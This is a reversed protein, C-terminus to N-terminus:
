IDTVRHYEDDLAQADEPLLAVVLYQAYEGFYDVLSAIRDSDIAELSDLLMFPVSEHLDHVLYGALAFVLGTVERESESLHEISDEYAAGSDTTRVIHLKFVTKEVKQRGDRVTEEVREIWIRDLNDYDLIDLMANMHENFSEVADSEIQDIETRKNTLEDVIRQRKDQLEDNEELLEEIEAIEDTVSELDSELRDIEFELQNAERHLSLVAEFDEAELENVEAELEEVEETLDERQAKLSDVQSERDEIESEVREIKSELEERRNQTRRHERQEDKLSDLKDGIDAVESTKDNLLTELQTITQEIQERDVTSGCTWCVVSDTDTDLLKETPSGASQNNSNDLTQLVETNGEELQEKNYQILSQLESIESNLRQRDERLRSIRDDLEQHDGMPSGPLEDLEAELDSHEQRLSSLSKEQREIQARLSEIESRTERLEAMAEELEEKEQRSEEIDQSEEDIEREKQELEDRKEAIEEQIENKKRELEAINQRRSEIEEIRNTIEKKESELQRIEQRIAATDVPRMIIERLDDGRAVSQRAENNELLFAFLDGVEPNELYGNGSFTVNGNTRELSREFTEGGIELTVGGEDADAKLSANSSGMAAMISQLFSTRNTANKGTLITVGPPLDVSTEEIGGIREVSLHASKISQQTGTM